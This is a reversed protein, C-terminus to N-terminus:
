ATIGRKAMEEAGAEAKSLYGYFAAKVEEGNQPLSTFEDASHLGSDRLAKGYSELLATCLPATKALDPFGITNLGTADSLKNPSLESFWAPTNKLDIYYAGDDHILPSVNSDVPINGTAPTALEKAATTEQAAAALMQRAQDSISVTDGIRSGIPIDTQESGVRSRATVREAQEALVDTISYQGAAITNM